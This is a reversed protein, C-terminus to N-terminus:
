GVGRASGGRRVAVSAGKSRVAGEDLLYYGVHRKRDHASAEGARAAELAVRATEIESHTSYRAALEVVRRCRDRTAFDSRTYVGAPDQRLVEEVKSVREFIESFDM